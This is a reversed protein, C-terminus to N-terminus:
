SIGDTNVSYAEIAYMFKLGNAIPKGLQLLYTFYPFMVWLCRGGSQASLM